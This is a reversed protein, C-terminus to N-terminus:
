RRCSRVYVTRTSVKEDGNPAVAEMVVTYTKSRYKPIFRCSPVRFKVRMSSSYQGTEADAQAM